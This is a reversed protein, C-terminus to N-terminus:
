SPTQSKQWRTSPSCGGERVPLVTHTPDGAPVPWLVNLRLPQVGQHTHSPPSWFSSQQEPLEPRWRLVYIQGPLQAPCSLARGRNRDKHKKNTGGEHSHFHPKTSTHRRPATRASRRACKLHWGGTISLSRRWPLGAAALNEAAQASSEVDTLPWLKPSRTFFVEPNVAPTLPWPDSRPSGCSTGEQVFTLEHLLICDFNCWFCM